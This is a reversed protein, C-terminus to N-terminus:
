HPVARYSGSVQSSLRFERTANNAFMGVGTLKVDGFTIDVAKDTEMVDDDPLLMLYSSKLHFHQAVGFAPRDAHVDDYLHIKSHVPDATAYEARLTVPPREPNFSRLLPQQIEYIDYQPYHALKAGAINYRAQGTQSLRVLNFKEVTYDPENTPLTPLADDTHRQMVQLLWFSGLALAATLAILVLLRFRDITRARSM